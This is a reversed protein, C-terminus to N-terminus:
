SGSVLMTPELSLIAPDKRLKNTQDEPLTVMVTRGLGEEPSPLVLILGEGEVNGVHYSVHLPKMGELIAAYAFVHEMNACTLEPGYMRFPQAYKGGEERESELWDIASWLEEEELSSLHQHVLGTLYALGGEDMKNEESSVMSFHLANGFYGHPLPAHMLKRFDICISLKCNENKARMVSLWFLAALIDFPTADPCDTQVESLCQKIITESFRFTVTSMKVPYPHQAKSKTAYYEASKTNTNPSARGRLAPPHFFPPYAISLHRHVDTWSKFLTTCFTPDAYLHTFSLGIALGEGEFDNLQIRFPSWTSTDEEPFDEWATLDREQSGDASTLWEDLTSHVRSVLVRVGADNCSVEWNGDESRRRLRGTVPPYLTLLQSLSERLRGLDDSEPRDYRYYFVIHLTHLGMAHDLISLPYRKGREVPTDSVVTLESHVNVLRKTESM